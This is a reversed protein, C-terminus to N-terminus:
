RDISCAPLMEDIPPVRVSDAELLRSDTWLIGTQSTVSNSYNAKVSSSFEVMFFNAAFHKKIRANIIGM